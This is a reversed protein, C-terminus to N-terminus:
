QRHKAFLTRFFKDGINSYVNRKFCESVNQMPYFRKPNNKM